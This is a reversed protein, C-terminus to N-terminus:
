IQRRLKVRIKSYSPKLSEYCFKLGFFRMLQKQLEKLSEYILVKVSFNSLVTIVYFHGSWYKKFANFFNIKRSDNRWSPSSTSTSEWHHAYFWQPLWRVLSISSLSYKKHSGTIKVLVICVLEFFCIAKTCLSQVLHPWYKEFSSKRPSVKLVLMIRIDCICFSGSDSRM